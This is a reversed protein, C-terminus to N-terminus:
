AGLHVYLIRQDMPIDVSVMTKRLALAARTYDLCGSEDIMHKYFVSTIKNTEADDVAWMTGIVSRFGVFQMASALHIVEDPSERDGVSTHCASLYAFEPSKLNCQIIHQITFPGDHLAFASEFPQEENLTGHCAFHVWENKCLESTVNSICADEGEVRTFTTLGDVLQGVISLETGVRPLENSGPARAQGIAVFHRRQTAVSGLSSPRRARILANLTTTYSSIFLHPVGMEGKRYPAAAHLPLLSFEATPCWWIRSQSPCAGRLFDVIRFVVADWLERLFIMFHREMETPEETKALKLLARLKLILEQVDERTVSLPIHVPDKDVFVILADCSYKSANMIVVPGGSAARQLDSFLTPLLFRSFNPLARIKSVVKRLKLNLRCVRDYQDAGPSHLAIRILSSLRTFEGALVNGAPGSAIVNDLPSRLRALQSWSVGRGQELLEVAKFPSQYRLCASFADVGLSSSLSKLVTLHQPLLLLIALHEALLRLATHHALLTTPHHFREAEKIWGKAASLHLSSVGESVCQLQAYLSFLEEKDGARALKTFRLSHLRALDWLSRWREQHGTPHLSLADRGLVIAENLDDIGGLQKYRFSLYRALHNLSTPRHLHGPPCLSLVDRSLVIAENLDDVKGLHKYRITLYRALNNLSMSRDPHGSPYLSVAIRVLVIAENLDDMRGIHKYRFTLCRALNNLSMSRDPHGSQCLSVAERVLVIAEQLDGIGGLQWYRSLLHSAANNLSTSHHLHGPPCLSLADRGPVSAENLDDHGRLQKYRSSLVDSLCKSRHLHGRPYLSPADQSLVVVENLGDIGGFQMHLTNAFDAWARARM